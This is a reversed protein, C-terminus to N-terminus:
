AFLKVILERANLFVILLGVFAMLPKVPVKRCLWAGIPAAVVGGIVLGLVQWILLSSSLTFLFTISTALTVFFEATNVTGITSKPDTGSAMLTSTVVPGWGGGGVSDCFGGALGVPYIGAGLNFSRPKTFVKIIIVIGMIILYGNIYPKIVSGDFSTLLYAGAVGGVVGPLVLKWFLSKDVNKFKLHSLASSFTTFIEALHVTASAAAAQVGFSLMFSNSSVGYAMGLTGDIMEALFGVLIFIWIESPISDFFEKVTLLIEM